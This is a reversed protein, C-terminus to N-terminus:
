QTTANPDKADEWLSSIPMVEEVVGRLWCFANRVVSFSAFDVLIPVVDPYVSSPQPQNAQRRLVEMDATQRVLREELQEARALQVRSQDIVVALQQNVQRVIHSLAAVENRTADLQNQMLQSRQEAEQKQRQLVDVQLQKEAVQRTLATIQERAQTLERLNAEGSEAQQILEIDYQGAQHIRQIREDRLEIELERIRRNMQGILELAARQNEKPPPIEQASLLFVPRQQGIVMSAM